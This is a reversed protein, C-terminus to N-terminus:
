GDQACHSYEDQIKWLPKPLKFTSAGRRIESIKRLKFKSLWRATGRSTMLDEYCVVYAENDQIRLTEIIQNAMKCDDEAVRGSIFASIEASGTFSGVRDSSCGFDLVADDTYVGLTNGTKGPNYLDRWAALVGRIMIEDESMQEKPTPTPTVTASPSQIISPTQTETTTSATTTTTSSREPFMRTYFEKYAEQIRSYWYDKTLYCIGATAAVIGAGVYKLFRRRSHKKEAM